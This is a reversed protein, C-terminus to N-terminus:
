STLTSRAEAMARIKACMDEKAVLTKGDLHWNAPAERDGQHDPVDRDPHDPRCRSLGSTRPPGVSSTPRVTDLTPSARPVLANFAPCPSRGRGAAISTRRPHAPMQLEMTNRLVWSLPQVRTSPCTDQAVAVIGMAEIDGVERTSRTDLVRSDRLCDDFKPRSRTRSVGDECILRPRDGDGITVRAM